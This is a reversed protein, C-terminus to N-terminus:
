SLKTTCVHRANHVHYAHFPKWDSWLIMALPTHCTFMSDLTTWVGSPYKQCPMIGSRDPSNRDVCAARRQLDRFVRIHFLDADNCAHNVCAFYDILLARHDLGTACQKCSLYAFTELGFM